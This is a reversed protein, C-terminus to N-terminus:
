VAALREVVVAEVERATRVQSGVGELFDDRELAVVAVPTVARVTASRAGGRLLAIEGFYEGPGEERLLHGDTATVRVNGSEIVYFRDSEDGERVVVDGAPVEVRVLARALADVTIPSLPGFM